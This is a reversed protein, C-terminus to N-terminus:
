LTVARGAAMFGQYNEVANLVAKTTGKDLGDCASPVLELLNRNNFTPFPRLRALSSVGELKEGRIIQGEQNLCFLVVVGARTRGKSKGVVVRGEKRLRKFGKNFHRIQWLGFVGQLFWVGVATLIYAM